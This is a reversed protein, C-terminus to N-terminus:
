RDRLETWALAIILFIGIQQLHGGGLPLWDLHFIGECAVLLLEIASAARFAKMAGSEPPKPTLRLESNLGPSNDQGPRSAGLINSSIDELDDSQPRFQPPTTHTQMNLKDAAVGPRDFARRYGTVGMQLREHGNTKPM